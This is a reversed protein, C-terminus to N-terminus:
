LRLRRHEQIGRVSPSHTQIGSSARMYTRMRKQQSDEKHLTRAVPRDGTWPTRGFYQRFQNM